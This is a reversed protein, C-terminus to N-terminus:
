TASKWVQLRADLFPSREFLGTVLPFLPFLPFLGNSYYQDSTDTDLRLLSNCFLHLPRYKAGTEMRLENYEM